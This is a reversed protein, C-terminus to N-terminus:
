LVRVLQSRSSIDLKAFVNRLHYQVTRASIFLRAGIEPNSLGDRALRVIQVEQATLQQGGVQANRKRATEGTAQLERRAREAFAEMGMADLMGHAIRLQARADTRRRERRLWEGYVLHARALEAHMRTLGLREIANRYWREADAGDSFLARSRAEVGLAWDTGAAGTMDSLRNLAGAATDMVGSRVSAEILEVLCWPSVGLDHPHEGARQAAAMATKYDGIGNNFTANAREAVTLGVGEGRRLVDKTTTEILASVEAQSGRFAALTLAGYPTMSDGTAETVAQAEQILSEATTLEGTFLLMVARSSLALPLETLAGASRAIEVHSASLADWSEEDWVDMAAIEALWLYRLEDGSSRRAVSVARRLTPLAAAHGDTFRAAFGDLLLDPLRSTLPRPSARAARAVDMVGCGGALRAAFMSASLAELYTTSSLAADVAELRKAAKVLLPPADSGRNTVFALRARVLDVRAQQLDSLPGTQARTVLDSTADSAGAEAKATAADLAREARQAPDLTLLTARELFAAAAAVGGRARARGASRVLEAAVDEDPNVAANALHWARRDADLQPDTANALAQHALQRQQLSTSHYAASRALPHRFSMRAAFEVLGADVAPAAAEDDIGLQAAAPWVLAPDGTPEAAALLLLRRTQDPLSSIRRRFNEEITGSLRVASPLGFGGALQSASLGRPLEVLALPNGRTEAIIQDRVQADLPGTLVRDLLLRAEDDSLGSVTLSPLAALNRGPVRAAFILGVSEAVLRRAVFALVEASAQDLWQEDDILCLVPQEDAVESLLSLVALGILFRDPPLGSIMGFATHLADRQPAPLLQIHDLMPGCLQHLAAFALEMESEVGAARTVHCTSARGAAYNLLASKGVGSEGHMVLARSEGACVAEILQNLVATEAQRGILQAM